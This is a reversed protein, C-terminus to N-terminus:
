KTMYEIVEIGLVPYMRQMESYQYHNVNEFNDGVVLNLRSLRKLAPTTNVRKLVVENPITIKVTKVNTRMSQSNQTQKEFMRYTFITIINNYYLQVGSIKQSKVIKVQHKYKM